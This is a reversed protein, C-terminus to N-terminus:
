LGCPHLNVILGKTARKVDKGSWANQRARKLEDKIRETLVCVPFGQDPDTTPKRCIPCDLKRARGALQDTPLVVICFSARHM